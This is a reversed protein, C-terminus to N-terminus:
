IEDEGIKSYEVGNIASCVVLSPCYNCWIGPKAAPEKGTAHRWALQIREEFEELQLWTVQAWYRVPEDKDRRWHTASTRVIKTDTLTRIGKQIDLKFFSLAYFLLQDSLPDPTAHGTKLDDIWLDGTPITGVWDATGTIDDPGSLRKWADKGGNRLISEPCEIVQKTRCNYKIPIEHRGLATPWLRERHPEVHGIFPQEALSPNEKALHMKTGWEAFISSEQNDEFPTIFEDPNQLYGPNWQGDEDRPLWSAAPCELHRTLQSARAWM